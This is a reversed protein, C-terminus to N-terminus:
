KLNYIKKTRHFFLSFVTKGANWYGAAVLFYVTKGNKLINRPNRTNYHLLLPLVANIQVHHDTVPIGATGNLPSKELLQRGEYM